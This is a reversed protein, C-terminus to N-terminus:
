LEVGVEELISPDQRIHYIAWTSGIAIIGWATIFIASFLEEM